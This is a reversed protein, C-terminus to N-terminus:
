GGVMERLIEPNEMPKGYTEPEGLAHLQGTVKGFLDLEVFELFGHTTLTDKVVGPM